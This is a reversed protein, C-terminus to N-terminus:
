PAILASLGPDRLQLIFGNWLAHIEQRYSSRFAGAFDSGDLLTELLARFAKPDHYSLYAVFMGSQRYFLHPPLDDSAKGTLRRFVNGSSRPRFHRQQLIALAADEPTVTEAGGGNSVFVALGEQFWSPIRLNWALDGLRQSFHLHSLEHTLVRPLREHTNGAKPSLFLRQNLVAGGSTALSTFAQYTKLSACVYVVVPKSFKEGHVKEVTAIAQPLAAAIIAANVEAGAEYRVRPDHTSTLFIADSRLLASLLPWCVILVFAAAAFLLLGSAIWLRRKRM